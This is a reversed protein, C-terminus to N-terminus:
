WCALFLVDSLHYIPTLYDRRLVDLAVIQVKWTDIIIAGDNVLRQVSVLGVHLLLSSRWGTPANAQATLFIGLKDPLADDRGM